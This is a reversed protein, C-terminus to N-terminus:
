PLTEPFLVDFPFQKGIGNALAKFIEAFAAAMNPGLEDFIERWHHDLFKNMEEGLLKDGNFLNDLHTYVRTPYLHVMATPVTGYEIGNIKVKTFNFPLVITTDVLTINIHGTGTIPLLLIQGSIDYMGLMKLEPVTLAFASHGKSFDSTTNHLYADKLGHLKIDRLTLNMQGRGQGNSIKLETIEFPDFSPIKLKRDGKVLHPIAERGSKAACKDFEQNDLHACVKLYSPLQPALPGADALCLTAALLILRM